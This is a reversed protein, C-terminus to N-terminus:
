DTWDALFVNLEHPRTKNRDSIWVLRRGDRSFHPFGDFGPHFSVREVGTGDINTLYLSYVGHTTAELDSTYLVRKGDRTFVPAFNVKGNKTVAREDSGDPRAMYVEMPVPVLARESLMREYQQNEQEDKPYFARYIIWQGDPSFFAGGAYGRKHAVKKLDSGDPNMTWLGIGNDRQSTFILRKGDESVTTEADYGDNDTIQTLTGKAPDCVFVDFDRYLPWLYGKSRDPPPPPEEHKHHTSSYLIRGDPLFYACTCKGKGNSVRKLDGTDLDLVYVQDAGDGARVAQLIIKRGDPAFYAEAHTGDATLQRINQLHKEGALADVKKAWAGLAPAAPVDGATAHLGAVLLPLALLIAAPGLRLSM